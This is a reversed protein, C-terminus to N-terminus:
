MWIIHNNSKYSTNLTSRQITIYVQWRQERSININYRATGLCQIGQVETWMLNYKKKLHIQRMEGTKLSFSHGALRQTKEGTRRHSSSWLPVPYLPIFSGSWCCKPKRIGSGYGLFVRLCPNSDFCTNNLPGYLFSFHPFLKSIRTIWKQTSKNLLQSM